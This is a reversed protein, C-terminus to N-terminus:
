AAVVPTVLTVRFPATAAAVTDTLLPTATVISFLVCAAPSSNWGDIVAGGISGGIQSQVFDTEGSAVIQDHSAGFDGGEIDSCSARGAADTGQVAVGGQGLNNDSAVFVQGDDAFCVSSISSIIM